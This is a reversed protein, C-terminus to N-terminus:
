DSGAAISSKPQWGSSWTDTYNKVQTKGQGATGWQVAASSMYAYSKVPSKAGWFKIDSKQKQVAPRMLFSPWYSELNVGRELQEKVSLGKNGGTEFLTGVVKAAYAGTVGPGAQMAAATSPFAHFYAEEYDCGRGLKSARAIANYKAQTSQKTSLQGAKYTVALSSVRSHEAEEKTAGDSCLTSYM